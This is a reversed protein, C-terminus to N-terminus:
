SATERYPMRRDRKLMIAGWKNSGCWVSSQYEYGRTRAVAEDAATPLVRAWAATSPDVSAGFEEADEWTAFRKTMKEATVLDDQLQMWVVIVPHDAATM